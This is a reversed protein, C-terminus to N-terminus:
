DDLKIKHDACYQHCDDVSPFYHGASDEFDSRSTRVCYKHESPETDSREIRALCKRGHGTALIENAWELRNQFKDM